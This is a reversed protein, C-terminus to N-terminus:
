TILNTFAEPDSSHVQSGASMLFTMLLESHGSGLIIGKNSQKFSKGENIFGVYRFLIGCIIGFKLTM